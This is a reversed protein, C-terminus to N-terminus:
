RYQLAESVHATTVMKSADLDAITRAVKIIKFYRRASLDLRESATTLLRNADPDLAVHNKVDRNTLNSNNKFSSGYRDLQMIKAQGILRKASIQQGKTSKETALLLNHPVRSVPVVM